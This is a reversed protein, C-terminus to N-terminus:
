RNVPPQAPPAVKPVGPMPASPGSPPSYYRRDPQSPPQRDMPERIVPRQTNTSSGPQNQQAAATALPSALLAVALMTHILRM